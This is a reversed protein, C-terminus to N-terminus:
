FVYQVGFTYGIHLTQSRNGTTQEWLTNVPTIERVTANDGNTYTITPGGFLELHGAIRFAPMLAYSATFPQFDGINTGTVTAAKLENNIRFWRTCNIHAGFGGETVYKYSSLKHNYGVGLIGYLVRGGSRFTATISGADNYTIGVAMDGSRIINVLGIPYDSKEAINVLGAFQVGNVIRAQNVLGAFQFGRIDHVKNFLGGFQFGQMNSSINGLGAFQFGKFDSTINGLGGLQFGKVDKAINALCAIQFGQVNSVANVLGAIQLGRTDAAFNTFGAIQAGRLNNSINILGGFQMGRVNSAANLLGAFQMGALNDTTNLIGALEFGRYDNSINNALGGVILGNGVNGIYNYLGAFQVGNANNLVINALSSFTFARENNSIGALINFSVGNTYEAADRGNTCLPPVFGVQVAAFKENNRQADVTFVSLGVLIFLILKKM